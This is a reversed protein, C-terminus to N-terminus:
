PPFFCESHAGEGVFSFVSARGASDSRCAFRGWASGASAKTVCTLSLWFALWEARKLVTWSVVEALPCNPSKRISFHAELFLSFFRHTYLHYDVPFQFYFSWFLLKTVTFYSIFSLVRFLCWSFSSQITFNQMSTIHAISLISFPFSFASPCWGCFHLSGSSFHSWCLPVPGKM